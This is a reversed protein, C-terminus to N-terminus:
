KENEWNKIRKKGTSFHKKDNEIGIFNRREIMSAVGTSCGGFTFDFVTDGKNTYTRILYQLLDVPKQTPHFQKSKNTNRGKFSILSIPNLGDVDRGIDIATVKGFVESQNAKFKRTTYSGERLQPNYTPQKKYFVSIIENRRMPQIQANLHNTVKNVTDWVWDYKYYKLNSTRLMSSFPEIGFLCIAGNDKTIRGLQKWMKSSDIIKDWHAPTKGYPPDCLVMDISNDPIEKMRELCDGFM